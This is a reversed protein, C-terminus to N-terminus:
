ISRLVELTLDRLALTASDLDGRWAVFLSRSPTPPEIELYAPGNPHCVMRPVLTLGLGGQVLAQVTEIGGSEYVVQPLVGADELSNLMIRRFGHGSKMLILPEGKLEVLNLSKRLAFRHSRPCAVMLPETFLLNYELGEVLGAEDLLALDLRGERLAKGLNPSSEETLQVQVGPHLKQFASLLPPLLYTGTTPLCGLSVSGRHLGALDEFDGKIRELQLLIERARPLFVEGWATLRAGQRGRNFLAGGLEDELKAIQASLSPQAVFCKESARTFSGTEAVALVYRLQHIEM